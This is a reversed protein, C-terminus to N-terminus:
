VPVSFVVRTGKAEGEEDKLDIIEMTIKSKQKRNLTKIREQTIATALSKHNKDYQLRLEHAKKRGIGDDEVILEMSGNKHEFRVSIHGKGEKHKIGHEIANEIFPQALMPPIFTNEVDLHEDVFLSFDFKKPFRVKQLEMYNEITGIEHELTIQEEMSNNLISRVLESFRALYISASTDDHKVIFNQVSALSNFIFHPNMQSRLLRQELLIKDQKERIRRQRFLFFVLMLAFLLALIVSLFILSNNRLKSEKLANDTALLSLQEEMKETELRIQLKREEVKQTLNTVSDNYASKLESHELAKAYNGTTKFLTTYHTHLGKMLTYFRRMIVEDKITVLYQYGTWIDQKESDDEVSRLQNALELFNSQAINYWYLATDYQKLSFNVAGLDMAEWATYYLSGSQKTEYYSVRILELAETYRGTKYKLDGIFGEYGVHHDFDKNKNIPFNSRVEYAYKLASDYEAADCYTEALTKLANDNLLYPFNYQRSLEIYKQFYSVGRDFERVERAVGGAYTYILAEEIPSVISRLETQPNNLLAMILDVYKLSSFYDEIDYNLKGIDTYLELMRRRDNRMEAIELAKHLHILAQRYNGQLAYANGFNRLAYRKEDEDKFKEALQLAREAYFLASDPSSLSHYFALQNWAKMRQHDNANILKPYITDSSHGLMKVSLQAHLQCFGFILAALLGLGFSITKTNHMM